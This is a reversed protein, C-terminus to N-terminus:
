VCNSKLFFKIMIKKEYIGYIFFLIYDNRIENLCAVYLYSKNIAVSKVKHM